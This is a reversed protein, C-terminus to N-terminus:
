SVIFVSLKFFHFMAFMVCLLAIHEISELISVLYFFHLGVRDADITNGGWISDNHQCKEVRPTPDVCRIRKRWTRNVEENHETQCVRQRPRLAAFLAYISASCSVLKAFGGYVWLAM